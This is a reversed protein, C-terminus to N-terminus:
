DSNIFVVMQCSQFNQIPIKLYGERVGTKIDKEIFDYAIAAMPTSVSVFLLETLGDRRNKVLWFDKLRRLQHTIASINMELIDLFDCVCLENTQRYPLIDLWNSVGPLTGDM